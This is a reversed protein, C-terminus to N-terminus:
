HATDQSISGQIDYSLYIKNEDFHGIMKQATMILNDSNINLHGHAHLINKNSDLMMEDSRVVYTQQDMLLTASTKLLKLIGDSTAYAGTPSEFSLQQNPSDGFFTGHIDVLYFDHADNFITASTATLSWEKKGSKLLSITVNEFAYEGTIINNKKSQITPTRTSVFIIGLLLGIIIPFFIHRM